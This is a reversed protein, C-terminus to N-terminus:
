AMGARAFKPIRTKLAEPIPAFTKRLTRPPGDFKVNSRAHQLALNDWMVLDGERWEHAFVNEEAYLHEFLSELLADSEPKPIDAIASTMQQCAYLVTEGTRPHRYAIPQRVCEDDDFQATLVDADGGSREYSIDHVHEAVRDEVQTRLETPLSKWAQAASIFLTPPAPQGIELGYLSILECAEDCWMMDSHWLLRGVPAIANETRNSVLSERKPANTPDQVPPERGIIAYSLYYQFPRDIEFDRFVLLAKEDFLARLQQLTESDLPIKPELGSIEAGFKPTLDRVVLGTM